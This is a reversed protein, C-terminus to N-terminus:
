AAPTRISTFRRAGEQATIELDGRPDEAPEFTLETKTSIKNVKKGDLTETGALSYTTESTQTGIGPIENKFAQKWISDKASTEPLPVVSKEILEKAGQESFLNGGIGMGAQRRGGQQGAGFADTLKKPLEVDTVKGLPSVKLKFTQGLMGNVMPQLMGAKSDPQQSDFELAGGLPSNMNVQVRDITQEIDASGDKAVAKTKWTSDLVM